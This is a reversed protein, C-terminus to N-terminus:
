TAPKSRFMRAFHAAHISVGIQSGVTCVKEPFTHVLFPTFTERAKSIGALGHPPSFASKGSAVSSKSHLHARPFTLPSENGWHSGQVSTSPFNALHWRDIKGRCHASPFTVTSQEAPIPMLFLLPRQSFLNASDTLLASGGRAVASGSMGDM